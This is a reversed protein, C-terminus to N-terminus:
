RRRPPPRRPPPLRPPPEYWTGDWSLYAFLQTMAAQQLLLTAQRDHFDFLGSEPDLYTSWAHDAYRQLYAGYAPNPAVANLRMLDEAFIAVFFPPQGELQAPSFYTLTTTAAEQARALYAADGTAQYLLTEAGLMTGQNYIWISKEITGALDINDAYLGSSERLCLRVWHYIRKAWRLYYGRRTIQYLEVGLEAGPANSVTNREFTGPRQTWWVGGPCPHRANGDWGSVVLRFVEVAKALLARDGLMRFGLVLQLGVWENDDYYKEAGGTALVGGEYGPPKSHQNWYSRLGVLHERVASRYQGQLAPMGAIATTAALAQSFPYMYAYEQASETEEGRYLHHYPMYYQQQMATYSRLAREADVSTQAGARSPGALTWLSAACLAAALLRAVGPTARRAAPALRAGGPTAARRVHPPCLQTPRTASTHM